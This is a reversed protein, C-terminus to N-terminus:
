VNTQNEFNSSPIIENDSETRNVVALPLIVRSESSHNTRHLTVSNNDLLHRKECEDLALKVSFIRHM